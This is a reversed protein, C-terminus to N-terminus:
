GLWLFPLSFLSRELERGHIPCTAHGGYSRGCDMCRWEMWWAGADVIPLSCTRLSCVIRRLPVQDEPCVPGAGFIRRCSPCRWEVWEAPGETVKPGPSELRVAVCALVNSDLPTPGGSRARFAPAEGKRSPGMKGRRGLRPRLGKCLL